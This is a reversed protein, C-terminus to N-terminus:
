CGSSSYGTLGVQQALADFIEYRKQATASGPCELPGNIANTTLGFEGSDDHVNTQFFWDASDWAYQGAVVDPNNYFFDPDGNVM